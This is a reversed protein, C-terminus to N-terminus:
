NWVTEVHPVRDAYRGFRFVSFCRRQAMCLSVVLWHPSHISAPLYTYLCLVPFLCAPPPTRPLALRFLSKIDHCSGKNASHGGHHPCMWEDMRTDPACESMILRHRKLRWREQTQRCPWRLHCVRAGVVCLFLAGGGDMKRVNGM